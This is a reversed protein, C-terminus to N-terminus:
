TKLLITKHLHYSKQNTDHCKLMSGSSPVKGLM